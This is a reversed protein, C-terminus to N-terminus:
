SQFIHIIFCNLFYRFTYIKLGKGEIERIVQSNWSFIFIQYPLLEYWQLCFDGEKVKSFQLYFVIKIIKNKRTKLGDVSLFFEKSMALNNSNIWILKGEQKSFTLDIYWLM